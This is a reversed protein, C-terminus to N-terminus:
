RASTPNMPAPFDVIPWSTAAEAAPREDVEIPLDLTAVTGNGLQELAALRLEPADFPLQSRFNKTRRRGRHDRQPTPGNDGLPGALQQPGMRERDPDVDVHAVRPLAHSVAAPRERAVLGLEPTEEVLALREVVLHRGPQDVASFVDEKPRELDVDLPSQECLEPGPRRFGLCNCHDAVFVHEIEM